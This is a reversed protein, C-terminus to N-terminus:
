DSNSVSWNWTKKQFPTRLTVAEQRRKLKRHQPAKYLICKTFTVHIHISFIQHQYNMHLHSTCCSGTNWVGYEVGYEWVCVTDWVCLLVFVWDCWCIWVFLCVFLGLSLKWTETFRQLPPCPQQPDPICVGPALPCYKPVSPLFDFDWCEELIFNFVNKPPRKEWSRINLHDRTYSRQDLSRCQRFSAISPGWICPKTEPLILLESCLKTFIITMEGWVDAGAPFFPLNTVRPDLFSSSQRRWNMLSWNSSGAKSTVIMDCPFPELVGNRRMASEMEM